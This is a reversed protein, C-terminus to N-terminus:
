QALLNQYVYNENRPNYELRKLGGQTIRYINYGRPVLLEYFDRLNTRSDLNAGGYEFQIRKIYQPYLKEGFGIMVSLEHGEVDIKLLDIPKTYYDEGRKTTITQEINMKVDYFDMNRKYLSSFGSGSATTYIVTEREKDSLAVEHLTIKDGYRRKLIERCEIIPEFAVIEDATIMNIYDGVNAGVDWVTGLKLNKLFKYEGNKKFDSNGIGELKYIIRYLFNTLKKM